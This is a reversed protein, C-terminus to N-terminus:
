KKKEGIRPALKDLAKIEGDTIGNWIVLIGDTVTKDIMVADVVRGNFKACLYKGRNATSLNELKNKASSKLQFVIGFTNQDDGLFPSFAVVDRSSFDAMQSFACEKGAVNIKFFMKPNGEIETQMHFTLAVDKGKKDGALVPQGTLVLLLSIALLFLYSSKGRVIM